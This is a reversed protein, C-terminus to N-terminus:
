AASCSGLLLFALVGALVVPWDSGDARDGYLHCGVDGDVLADERCGAVGICAATWLVTVGIAGAANLLGPSTRRL